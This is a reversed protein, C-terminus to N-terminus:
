DFPILYALQITHGSLRLQKGAEQRFLRYQISYSAAFTLDILLEGMGITESGRRLLGVGLGTYLPEWVRFGIHGMVRDEDIAILGTGSEKRYILRQYGFRYLGEVWEVSFNAGDSFPHSGELAQAGDVSELAIAHYGVGFQIGTTKVFPEDSETKQGLALNAPLVLFLLLVWAPMGGPHIPCYLLRIKFKGSKM